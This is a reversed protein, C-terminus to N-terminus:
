AHKGGKTQILAFPQMAEAENNKIQYSIYYDSSATQGSSSAGKIINSVFGTIVEALAVIALGIIAYLITKKAKEVKATEGSSTMYSVGGIILFIVAVVGAVGVAWQIANTIILGPNEIGCSSEGYCENLHGQGILIFRISNFIINAGLVIGLGIFANAITKKGTTVKNTDGGSLLYLYGGYIVFGFVLYAAIGTLDVGINAAIKWINAKLSEEDDINEVGFCWQTLGAFSEDCNGVDLYQAASVPTSAVFLVSSMSVLVISLKKLIKNMKIIKKKYEYIIM